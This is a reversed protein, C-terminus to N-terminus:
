LHSLDTQQNTQQNTPTIYQCSLTEYIIAIFSMLICLYIFLYISFVSQYSTTFVYIHRTLPYM